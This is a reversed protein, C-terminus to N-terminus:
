RMTLRVTLSQTSAACWRRRKLDREPMIYKRSRVSSAAARAGWYRTPEAEEDDDDVLRRSWGLM